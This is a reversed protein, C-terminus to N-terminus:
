ANEEETFVFKQNTLFEKVKELPISLSQIEGSESGAFNIGVIKKSTSILMGGSSGHNIPADHVIVEFQVNSEEIPTDTLHVKSYGLVKGITVTNNQGKPQGIAVVVDDVKPNTNAFGITTL